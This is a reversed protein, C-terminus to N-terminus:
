FSMIIYIGNGDFTIWSPILSKITATIANFAAKVFSIAARGVPSFACAIVTGGTLGAIGLLKVGLVGKFHSNVASAYPANAKADYEKRTHPFYAKV